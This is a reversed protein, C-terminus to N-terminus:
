KTNNTGKVYQDYAKVWNKRIADQATKLPLQKGCVMTHLKEELENKAAIGYEKNDPMPWLNDPDNSGGLTVPILHDLPGQFDDRRGYRSLVESRERKSIEPVSAEYDASCLQTETAKTKAGSTVLSNPLQAHALSPVVLLFTAAIFTTGARGLTM